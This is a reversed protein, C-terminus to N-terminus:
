ENEIDEEKPVAEEALYAATFPGAYLNWSGRGFLPNNEQQVCAVMYCKDRVLVYYDYISKM